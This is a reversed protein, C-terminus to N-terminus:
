SSLSCSNACAIASYRALYRNTMTRADFRAVAEARCRTRDIAGVRAIAGAMSPIDDALLGTLGDTVIEPLAGKRFAIVPTGCALAEMAALSSTETVFSPVLLARAGALLDRKEPLRAAGIWRRRGDLRPALVEEYYRQHELYPFLEGAIVVDADALKAADLATHFNKDNCIRGLCLLHEGPAALPTFEDVNVGNVIVESMVPCAAHQTESVTVFHLDRREWLAPAYWAPPLHLTVLGPRIAYTDVDLGHYHVVDADGLRELARRTHWRAARM